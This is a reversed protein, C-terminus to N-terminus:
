RYRLQALEEGVPRAMLTAVAAKATLGEHVMAFVAAVIPLDLGRTKAHEHVARATPVGEAVHVMSNLIAQIAEGKGLRLGVQHNRSLPSACTAILDGIGALGGFTFVDAGASVGLQAMESLGRTMLLAKTNDGLSLGDAVGSAIAIINKFSGGIETGIVDRGGYVRLWGGAFLGQTARVVEDYRSAVLAGAPHGAFIEGALNPGSLVGLKLACTEERLIESMRRGSGIEIGKTTHVLIQDGRITEGVAHAVERFSRSPVSMLVLPAAALAPALEATAVLNPALSVDPVYRRNQHRTNIEDAQEPRRVWLVVHRGLGALLNALATGFSGGGLVLADIRGAASM